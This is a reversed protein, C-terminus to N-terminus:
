LISKAIGPAHTRLSFPCSGPVKRKEATEDTGTSKSSWEIWQWKGAARDKYAPCLEESIKM